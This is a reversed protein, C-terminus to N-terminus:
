VSAAIANEKEIDVDLLYLVLFDACGTRVYIGQYVLCFRIVSDRAKSKTFRRTSAGSLEESGFERALPCYFSIGGTRMGTLKVYITRM